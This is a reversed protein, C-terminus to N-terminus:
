NLKKGLFHNLINPELSRGIWEIPLIMIV